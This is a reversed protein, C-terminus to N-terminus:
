LGISNLPQRWQHAIANLMEGMAALKSQQLLMREQEKEKQELLRIETVDQCTGFLRLPTDGDYEAKGKAHMVKEDGERTTIRFYSDLETHEQLAMNVQNNLLEREEPDLYELFREYDPCSEGAAEGFLELMNDSWEMTRTKLDWDWHGLMALKEAEVLGARADHLEEIMAKREDIDEAMAIFYDLEHNQEDRIIASVTLNVWVTEGSKTIYRKELTYSGLESNVVKSAQQVDIDLDDPHTIQQFTLERLEDASYGVINCYTDNAQWFTGDPLVLAIGLPANSFVKQFLQRSQREDSIDRVTGIFFIRGDIKVQTVALSIPILQGDKHRGFLEREQGIIKSTLTQDHNRIYDDHRDHHPEPVLIKINHGILEEETYGFMDLAVRNTKEIIGDKSITIIADFTNNFLSSLYAEASHSKQQETKLKAIYFRIIYVIPTVTLLLIITAVLLFEFLKDTFIADPTSDLRYAALIDNGFLDLTFLLTQEDLWQPSKFGTTLAVDQGFY